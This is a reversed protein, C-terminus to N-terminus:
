AHPPAKPPREGGNVAYTIWNDRWTKQAATWQTSDTSTFYSSYSLLSDIFDNFRAAM